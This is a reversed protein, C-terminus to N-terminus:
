ASEGYGYLQNPSIGLGNCIKKVDEANILKRGNIISSFKKSTYGCKEAAISKSIGKEDIIKRITCGIDYDSNNM